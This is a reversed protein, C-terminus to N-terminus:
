IAASFVKTTEERFRDLFSAIVRAYAVGRWPISLELGSGVALGRSIFPELRQEIRAMLCPTLTTRGHCLLEEILTGRLQDDRTRM